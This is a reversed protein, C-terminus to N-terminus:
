GGHGILCFARAGFVETTVPTASSTALLALVRARRKWMRVLHRALLLSLWSVLVVVERRVFALPLRPRQRAPYAPIKTGQSLGAHRDCPQADVMTASSLPRDPACHTTSQSGSVKM